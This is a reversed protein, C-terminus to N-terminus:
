RPGLSSANRQRRKSSARLPTPWPTVCGKTGTEKSTPYTRGGSLEATRTFGYLAATNQLRRTPGQGRFDSLLPAFRSDHSVHLWYQTVRRHATFKSPVTGTECQLFTASSGKACGTLRRVLNTVFRDTRTYDPDRVAAPYLVGALVDTTVLQLQAALPVPVAPSLAPGTKYLAAWLRPLELPLTKGPTRSRKLAVGLYTVERTWQLPQGSLLLAVNAGPPPGCLHLLHSKRTNFVVAVEAAWQSCVDLTRQLDSPSSAVLCTDDALLLCRTFHERACLEVGTSRARLRETLPEVFLTFLLPSLPPGQPTGRETPVATDGLFTCRDSLLHHALGVWAHPVGQQSLVRLLKSHSVSDFAKKVDLFATYLPEKHQKAGDQLSQLLFTDTVCHWLRLSQGYRLTATELRTRGVSPV